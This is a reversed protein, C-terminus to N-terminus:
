RDLRIDQTHTEGVELIVNHIVTTKFGNSSVTVTYRGVALGPIRYYGVTNTPQESRLGTAVAVVKRQRRGGRSGIFRYGHRRTGRSRNAGRGINRLNSRLNSSRHLAFCSRSCLLLARTEHIKLEKLVLVPF